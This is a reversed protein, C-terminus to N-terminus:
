AESNDGNPAPRTAPGDGTVRDNVDRNIRKLEKLTFPIIDLSPGAAVVDFCLGELEAAARRNAQWKNRFDNTTSITVLVTALTALIAAIDSRNADKLCDLKLILAASASSLASLVVTGFYTFSWAISNRRLERQNALVIDLIPGTTESVNAPLLDLASDRHFFGKLVNM